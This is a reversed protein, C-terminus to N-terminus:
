SPEEKEGESGKPAEPEGKLQRLIENHIKLEDKYGPLKKMWDDNEVTNNKIVVKKEEAMKTRGQWLLLLIGVL